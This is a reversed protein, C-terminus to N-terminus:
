RRPVNQIFRSQTDSIKFIEEGRNARQLKDLWEEYFEKDYSEALSLLIGQIENLSMDAKAMENIMDPHSPDKKYFGIQSKVLGLDKNLENPIPIGRKHLESSLNAMVLWSQEIPLTSMFTRGINKLYYGTIDLIAIEDNDDIEDRGEIAAKFQVYPGYEEPLDKFKFIGGLIAIFM